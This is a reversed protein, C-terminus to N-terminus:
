SGSGGYGCPIGSVVLSLHIFLKPHGNLCFVLTLFDQIKGLRFCVAKKRVKIGKAM